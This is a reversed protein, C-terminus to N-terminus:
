RDLADLATKFRRMCEEVTSRPCAFNFRVYGTGEEGFWVGLDGAVKAKELVFHHLEDPSMGLGSFDFWILYTGEPKLIQIGPLNEKAFDIAYDINGEIYRVLLDVYEDGTSYAVKGALPGFDNSKPLRNAFIRDAMRRKLTPDPSVVVSAGLGALNFTKSPAYAIIINDHYVKDVSGLTNFKVNRYILDAHIEDSFVVVGNDRCIRCLKELEEKTWVRGVPNHPNCLVLLRNNPDRALQELNEFDMEYRDGKRILRNKVVTRHNNVVGDFFPYYVPPQIIVGEGEATFEQVAANIAPVVGPVFFGWAPDFGWGYRRKAWASCAAIFESVIIPNAYGYIGHAARTKVAEIVAPPCRFDMDAVWMPLADDVHYGEFRSGFGHWKTSYTGSQESRDIVEDFYTIDM